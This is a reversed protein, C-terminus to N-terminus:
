KKRVSIEDIGYAFQRDDRVIIGLLVEVDFKDDM